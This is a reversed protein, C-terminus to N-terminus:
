LGFLGLSSKTSLRRSLGDRHPYPGRRTAVRERNRLACATRLEPTNDHTDGLVDRGEEPWQELLLPAEENDGRYAVPLEAALPHRLGLLAGM